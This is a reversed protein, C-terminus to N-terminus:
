APEGFAHCFSTTSAADDVKEKKIKESKDPAFAALGDAM